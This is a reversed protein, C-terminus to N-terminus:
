RERGPRATERNQRRSRATAHVIESGVLQRLTEESVHDAIRFTEGEKWPYTNHELVMRHVSESRCRPFERVGDPQVAALMEEVLGRDVAAGAGREEPGVPAAASVSRTSSNAPRKGPQALSSASRCRRTSARVASTAASDSRSRMLLKSSAAKM